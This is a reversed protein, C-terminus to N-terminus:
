DKKYKINEISEENNKIKVVITDGIKNFIRQRKENTFIWGLIVDIPILFTKGFSSIIVGKLDAKKGYTNTVKLNLIRKGISQGTKYELTIWYGFFIMSTQFYQIAEIWIWKENMDFDIKGFFAFMILTSIVTIILFDILWAFFRDSWKAITIESINDSNSESM